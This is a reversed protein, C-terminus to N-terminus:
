NISLLLFIILFSFCFFCPSLSLDQLKAKQVLMSKLLLYKGTPTSPLKTSLKYVVNQASQNNKALYHSSFPKLYAEFKLNYDKSLIEVHHITLKLSKSQKYSPGVQLNPILKEM